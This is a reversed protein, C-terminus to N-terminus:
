PKGLTLEFYLLNISFTNFFADTARCLCCNYATAAAYNNMLRVSTTIHDSWPHEKCAMVEAEKNWGNIFLAKHNNPCGQV